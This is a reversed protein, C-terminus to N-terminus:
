NWVWGINYKGYLTGPSMGNIPPDDLIGTITITGDVKWVADVKLHEVRHEDPSHDATTAPFVWAEVLSTNVVGTTAVDLTADTAGPFAGFDLLATGAAGM